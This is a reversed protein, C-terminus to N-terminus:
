QLNLVVDKLSKFCKSRKPPEIENLGHFKS